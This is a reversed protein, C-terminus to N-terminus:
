DRNPYPINKEYSPGPTQSAPFILDYAPLKRLETNSAGPAKPRLSLGEIEVPSSRRRLKDGDWELWIFKGERLVPQEAEPFHEPTRLRLGDSLKGTKTWPSLACVSPMQKWDGPKELINALFGPTYNIVWAAAVGRTGTRSCLEPQDLWRCDLVIVTGDELDPSLRLIQEWCSKQKAWSEVYDLRQLQISAAVSLSLYVLCCSATLRRLLRGQNRVFELIAAVLLGAGVASPIHLASLRGLVVNPPYYDDHWRYVYPLLFFALGLGALGLLYRPKRPSPQPEESQTNKLGGWLILATLGAMAWLWVSGHSIVEWPRQVCLQLTTRAGILPALLARKLVEGLNGMMDGARNDGMHKRIGIVAVFVLVLGAWYFLERKSSVKGARLWALLPFLFFLLFYPEYTVLVMAAVSLCALRAKIGPKLFLPIALLTMGLVIFYNTMHMIIPGSGDPPYAVFLVAAFLAPGSSSLSRVLRFLLYAVGATLSCLFLYHTALTGTLGCLWTLSQNIIWWGPRGQPWYLLSYEVNWWATRLDWNAPGITFYYDDEYIGFQSCFLFDALFAVGLLLLFVRFENGKFTKARAQM